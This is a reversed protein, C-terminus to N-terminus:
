RPVLPPREFFEVRGTELEYRAEAVLFGTSSLKELLTSGRRLHDAAHRVNARVGREVLEDDSLAVGSEIVDEVSPRIREVIDRINDSGIQERGRLAKITADVAGCRSHGMVLALQTGFKAAAFEVSGVISPAVINGAVRIVFLDGPGQDFITEVPVRSDSCALVIAFPQQGRALDAIQAPTAIAEVSRLGSAFRRNGERLRELAEEAKV